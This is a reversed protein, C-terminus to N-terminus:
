HCGLKMEGDEICDEGGREGDLNARHIGIFYDKM